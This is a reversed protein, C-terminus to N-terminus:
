WRTFPSNSDDLVKDWKKTWVTNEEAIRAWYEEPNSLSERHELRYREGPLDLASLLLM